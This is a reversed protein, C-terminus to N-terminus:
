GALERVNARLALGALQELGALEGLDLLELLCKCLGLRRRLRLVLWLGVGLRLLRAAAQSCPDRLGDAGVPRRGLGLGVHRVRALADGGREVPVEVVVVGAGVRCRDSRTLAM